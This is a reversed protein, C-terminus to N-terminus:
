PLLQIEGSSDPCLLSLQSSKKEWLHLSCGALQQLHLSLLAAEKGIAAGQSM